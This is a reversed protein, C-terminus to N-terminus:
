IPIDALWPKWFKDDSIFENFGYFLNPGLIFILPDPNFVADFGTVLAGVPGFGLAFGCAVGYIM